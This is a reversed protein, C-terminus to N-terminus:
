FEYEKKVYYKLNEDFEILYINTYKSVTFISNVINNYDNAIKGYDTEYKFPTSYANKVAEELSSLPRSIKIGGKVVYIKNANDKIALCYKPISSIDKQLVFIEKKIVSKDVPLVTYAIKDELNSIAIVKAIVNGEKMKVNVIDNLNYKNKM